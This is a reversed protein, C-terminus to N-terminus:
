WRRRRSPAMAAAEATEESDFWRKPGSATTEPERIVQSTWARFEGISGIKYTM